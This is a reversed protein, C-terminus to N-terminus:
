KAAQRFADSITISLRILLFLILSDRLSLFLANISHDITLLGLGIGIAMFLNLLNTEHALKVDFYAIIVGFLFSMLILMPLRGMAYFSTIYTAIYDGKNSVGYHMSILRPLEGVVDQAKTTWILGPVMKLASYGIPELWVLERIPTEAILGLLVNGANLRYGLEYELTRKPDNSRVTKTNFMTEIQEPVSMDAFAERGYAARLYAMGIGIVLLFLLILIFHKIKATSPNWKNFLVFSTLAIVIIYQRQATLFVFVFWFIFIVPLSKKLSRQISLYKLSILVALPKSLYGFISTYIYSIVTGKALVNMGGNFEFLFVGVGWMFLISWPIQDIASNRSQAACVSNEKKKRRQTNFFAYAFSFVLIGTGALAVSRALTNDTFEIIRSYHQEGFVRQLMWGGGHVLSLVAAFWVGISAQPHGCSSVVILLAISMTVLGFLTLLFSTINSSQFFYFFLSLFVAAQSLFLPLLYHNKNTLARNNLPFDREYRVM